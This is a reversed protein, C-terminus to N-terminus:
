EGSIKRLAIAPAITTAPSIVPSNASAPPADGIACAVLKTGQSM